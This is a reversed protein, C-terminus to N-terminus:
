LHGYGDEGDHESWEPTTGIGEQNGFHFEFFYELVTLLIMVM